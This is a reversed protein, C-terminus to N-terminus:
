MQKVHKQSSTFRCGKIFFKNTRVGNVHPAVYDIVRGNDCMKIINDKQRDIDVRDIGLLIGNVPIDEQLRGNSYSVGGDGTASENVIISQNVSIEHDTVVYIPHSVNDEDIFYHETTNKM